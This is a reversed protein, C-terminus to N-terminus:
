CWFGAGFVCISGVCVFDAVEMATTTTVAAAAVALEVFREPQSIQGSMQLM